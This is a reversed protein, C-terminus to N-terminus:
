RLLDRLQAYPRRKKTYYACHIRVYRKPERNHHDDPPKNGERPRATHEYIARSLHGLREANRREYYAHDDDTEARASGLKAYTGQRSKRPMGVEREAVGVAAADEIDRHNEADRREDARKDSTRRCRKDRSRPKDGYREKRHKNEAITTASAKIGSDEKGGKCEQQREVAPVVLACLACRRVACCGRQFRTLLTKREGDDFHGYCTDRKFYDENDIFYFDIDRYTLHEVGCWVNRWALPVGFEAVHTMKEIFHWPITSYKPMVVSVKCGARKLAPPLAGGVDGLGGTKAFPTAESTAFLVRLKRRTTM